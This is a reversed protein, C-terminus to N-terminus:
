ESLAAKSKAASAPASTTARKRAANTALSVIGLMQELTAGEMIADDVWEHDATDILVSKILKIGRGVGRIAQRNQTTRVSIADPHDAPLEAVAASQHEWEVGLRTFQEGISQWVSLQEPTPMRVAMRRPLGGEHLAFDISLPEQTAPSAADPTARRTKATM